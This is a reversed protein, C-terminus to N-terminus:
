ARGFEVVWVAGKPYGFFSVRRVAIGVDRFGPSLINARHGPSRMWSSFIARARGLSGTGFGLNEGARTWRYGTQDIRYEFPHGCATHSFGCRAIDSDKARAARMLFHSLRLPPLRAERRAYDHLCIMVQVRGGTCYGAPALYSVARGGSQAPNALAIAAALV